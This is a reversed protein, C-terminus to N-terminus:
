SFCCNWDLNSVVKIWDIYHPSDPNTKVFGDFQDWIIKVVERCRAAPKCSYSTVHREMREEMALRQMETVSALALNFMPFCIMCRLPTDVLKDFLGDGTSKLARIQPDDFPREELCLRIWIRLSVKLLEFFSLHNRLLQPDERQLRNVVAQPPKAMVIQVELRDFAGWLDKKDLILRKRENISDCLIIYLDRSIGMMPDLTGTRVCWDDVQRYESATFLTGREFVKTSLVEHYLIWSIMWSMEPTENHEKIFDVMGGDLLLLERCRSMLQYWVDVNGTSIRSTSLLIFLSLLQTVDKDSPQGQSMMRQFQKEAVKLAKLFYMQGERNEPGLLFMGGWGVLSDLVAENKNALSLFYHGYYHENGINLQNLAMYHVYHNLFLKGTEDLGKLLGETPMFQRLLSNPGFLTRVAPRLYPQISKTKIIDILENESVKQAELMQSEDMPAFLMDSSESDVSMTDMVTAGMFGVEAPSVSGATVIPSVAVIPSDAPMEHVFNAVGLDKEWIMLPQSTWKASESETVSIKKRNVTGEDSKSHYRKRHKQKSVEQRLLKESEVLSSRDFLNKPKVKRWCCTEGRRACLGCIPHVEDCKKKAKRCNICGSRSRNTIGVFQLDPAM